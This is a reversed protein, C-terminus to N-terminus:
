EGLAEDRQGVSGARSVRAVVGGVPLAAVARRMAVVILELAHENGKLKPGFGGEDGVLVGEYGHEQLTVALARYVQVTRHLAQSYSAAGIPLFLFDQMDLNRGAHLGGSILNVMPLPLRAEGGDLHRWM